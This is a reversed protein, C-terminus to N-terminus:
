ASRVPHTQEEAPGSQRAMAQADQRTRTEAGIRRYIEDAPQSIAVSTAVHARNAYPDPSADAGERYVFVLERAGHAATPLNFRVKLDDRETFGKQRALGFLNATLRESNEDWPKGIM